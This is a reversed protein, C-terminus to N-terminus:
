DRDKISWKIEFSRISHSCKFDVNMETAYREHLLVIADHFKASVVVNICNCM